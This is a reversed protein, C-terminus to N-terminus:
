GDKQDKAAEKPLKEAANELTVNYDERCEAVVDPDPTARFEKTSLTFACAQAPNVFGSAMPNTREGAKKAAAPTTAEVITTGKTEELTARKTKEVPAGKDAESTCGLSGLLVMVILALSVRVGRIDMERRKGCLSIVSM